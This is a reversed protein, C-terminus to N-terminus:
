LIEHEVVELIRDREKFYYQFLLGATIGAVTAATFEVMLEHETAILTTNLYIDSIWRAVAWFGAVAVTSVATIFIAFFSNTSFETFEDLEVVLILAIGAASLYNLTMPDVFKSGLIKQVFILSVLAVLEWPITRMNRQSVTPAAVLLAVFIALLGWLRSAYLFSWAGFGLFFAEFMMVGAFNLLGQDFGLDRLRTVDNSIFAM